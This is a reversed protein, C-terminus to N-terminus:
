RRGHVRRCSRCLVDTLEDLRRHDTATPRDYKIGAAQFRSLFDWARKCTDQLPNRQAVQRKLEVLIADVVDDYSMQEHLEASVVVFSLRNNGDYKMRGRALWDLWLCLSSKGIGREGEIIFHQPNGARTQLLANECVEIEPIRGVFMGPTIVNGPRFPNFKAM